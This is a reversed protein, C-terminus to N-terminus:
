RHMQAAISLEKLIEKMAPVRLRFPLKKYRLYLEKAKEASLLPILDMTMGEVAAFLYPSIECGNYVDRAQFIVDMIEGATEPDPKEQVVKRIASDMEDLFKQHGPDNGPRKGFGLVGAIGGMPGIKEYLERNFRAYDEFAQTFDEATYM